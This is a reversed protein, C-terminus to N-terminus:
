TVTMSSGNDNVNISLILDAADRSWTDPTQYMSASSGFCSQLMDTNIVGPNLAVAICGRPLERALSRSMGEVGWKTTCYPAVDPAASRGWGSSMNVIVGKQKAVMHPVFHRIVNATGKINVDIVADFEEVPVEWLPANKNILGANNVLIDPVGFREVTADAWSKVEKDAAVDVASFSHRDGLRDALEKVAAESRACGVVTHGRSALEVALSQGLGKSVGTVVIVKGDQPTDGGAGM